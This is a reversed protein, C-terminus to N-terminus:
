KVGKNKKIQLRERERGLEIMAQAFLIFATVILVGLLTGIFILEIRGM